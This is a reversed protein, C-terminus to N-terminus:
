IEKKLEEEDINLENFKRIESFNAGFYKQHPKSILWTLENERGDFIFKHNRGKVRYSLIGNGFSYPEFHFEQLEFDAISKLKTEIDARFQEFDM